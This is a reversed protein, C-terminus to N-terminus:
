RREENGEMYIKVQGSYTKAIRARARTSTSHYAELLTTNLSSGQSILLKEERYLFGNVSKLDSHAQAHKHLQKHLDQSEIFEDNEIRIQKIFEFSPLSVHHIINPKQRWKQYLIRQLMKRVQDISLNIIMDYYNTLYYHQDTIQVVQNM